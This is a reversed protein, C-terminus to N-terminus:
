ADAHGAAHNSAPRTGDEHWEQEGILPVFRVAGVTEERVRGGDPAHGPCRNNMM